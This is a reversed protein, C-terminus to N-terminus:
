CVRQSFTGWSGDGYRRSAPCADFMLCHGRNRRTYSIFNCRELARCRNICAALSYRWRREVKTCTTGDCRATASKACHGSFLTEEICVTQPVLSAELTPCSLSISYEGENMRGRGEVVLAYNEGEVLNTLELFSARGHAPNDCRGGHNDNSVVETYRTKPGHYCVEKMEMLGFPWSLSISPMPLCVTEIYQEYRYLTIYTNFSSQCGDIIMHSNGATFTHFVDGSSGGFNDARGVTSGRFHGGCAIGEEKAKNFDM